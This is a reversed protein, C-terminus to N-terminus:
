FFNIILAGPVFSAPPEGSSVQFPATLFGSIWHGAGEDTPHLAWGTIWGWSFLAAPFEITQVNYFQGPISSNEAWWEDAPGCLVRRYGTDSGFFTRSVESGTATTERPINYSGYLGLWLASPKDPMGTRLVFRGIRSELEDSAMGM